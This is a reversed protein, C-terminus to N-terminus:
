KDSGKINATFGIPRSEVVPQKVRSYKPKALHDCNTVVQSPNVPNLVKEEASGCELRTLLSQVKAGGQKALAPNQKWMEIFFERMDDSQTLRGLMVEHPLTQKPMMGNERM